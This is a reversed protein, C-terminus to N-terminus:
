DDALDEPAPRAGGVLQQRRARWESPRQGTWRKFARSFTSSSSFGLEEALMDLTVTEDRLREYTKKERLRDLIEQFTTNEDRLRRLLTRETMALLSATRAKTVEGHALQSALIERVRQTFRGSFRMTLYESTMEDIMTALEENASPTPRELDDRQFTISNRAQQFQVPLHFIETFLSDDGPAAHRFSVAIPVIREGHIWECFLFVGALMADFTPAIPRRGGTMLDMDLRYGADVPQFEVVAADSVIRASRAFRELARQLTRSCSMAHGTLHFTSPRIHRAVRLGFLEDRTARLAAIWLGTVQEQLYRHHIDTIGNPNMGLRRMVEAAGVGSEELTTAIAYVWASLGTQM